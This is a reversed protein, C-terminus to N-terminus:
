NYMLLLIMMGVLAFLIYTQVKGTQVKRFILGFLSGELRSVGREDILLKIHSVAVARIVDGRRIHGRMLPRADEAALRFVRVFM